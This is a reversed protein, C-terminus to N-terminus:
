LWGDAVGGWSEGEEDRSCKGREEEFGDVYGSMEEKKKSKVGGVGMGKM